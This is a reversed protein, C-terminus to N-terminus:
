QSDKLYPRLKGLLDLADIYCLATPESGESFHRAVLDLTGTPTASIQREAFRICGVCPPDAGRQRHKCGISAIQEAIKM